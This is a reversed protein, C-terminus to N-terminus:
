EGCYLFAVRERTTNKIYGILAANKFGRRRFSARSSAGRTNELGYVSRGGDFCSRKKDGYDAGAVRRFSVSSVIRLLNLDDRASIATFFDSRETPFKKTIQTM